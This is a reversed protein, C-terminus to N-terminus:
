GILLNEKLRTTEPFNVSNFIEGDVLFKIIQEASMMACNEEASSTSAGLHPFSCLM